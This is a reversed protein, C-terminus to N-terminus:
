IKYTFGLMCWSSNDWQDIHNYLLRAYSQDTLSSNFTVRCSVFLINNSTLTGGFFFLHLLYKIKILNGLKAEYYMPIDLISINRNM